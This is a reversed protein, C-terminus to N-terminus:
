QSKEESFIIFTLVRNYLNYFIFHFISFVRGYFIIFQFYSNILVIGSKNGLRISRIM